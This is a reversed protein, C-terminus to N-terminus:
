HEFTIREITQTKLKSQGEENYQKKQTNQKLIMDIFNGLSCKYRFPFLLINKNVIDM